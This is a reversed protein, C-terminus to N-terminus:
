NELEINWYLYDRWAQPATKFGITVHLTTPNWEPEKPRRILRM